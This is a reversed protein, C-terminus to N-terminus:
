ATKSIFADITRLLAEQDRKPLADIAQLRRSLRRNKVSGTSLAERKLGLLEDSTVELIQAIEGVIDAPLRIVDNEYDSVVPQTVELREALEKQTMGKDKRLQSIRAGISEGREAVPREGLCYIGVPITFGLQSRTYAIGINSRL